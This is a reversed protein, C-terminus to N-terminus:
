NDLKEDSFLNAPWSLAPVRQPAAASPGDLPAPSRLSSLLIARMAFNQREPVQLWSLNVLRAIQMDM